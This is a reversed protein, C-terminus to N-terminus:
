HVRARAGATRLTRRARPVARGRRTRARARARRVQMQKARPDVNRYVRHGFGMLKFPDAKDKAKALFLPIRAVDGIERLMKIVAENAGGHSPGWLSAVGAAVCAFPNADSSGAFRVISTSANQEHDAHLLFLADMARVYPAPPAYEPEMPTSFMMRLFNAAYTLDGRPYVFPQGISHKYSMAAITPMKAVVRVCALARAEDTMAKVDGRHYFASLAGVTGVMVAMPHAGDPFGTMFAKLREHVTMRRIIEREFARFDRRSPPLENNLLLYCVELYSSKRSLDEISYGRHLLQGKPGDIFTISSQCSATGMFGPDLTFMGTLAHLKTVDVCPPGLTPRVVPLEVRVESGDAATASLTVTAGVVDCLKQSM